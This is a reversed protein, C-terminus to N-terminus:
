HHLTLKHKLRFGIKNEDNRGHHQQLSIHLQQIKTMTIITTKSKPEIKTSNIKPQRKDIDNNFSTTTNKIHQQQETTKKTEIITFFKDDDKLTQQQQHIKDTSNSPARNYDHKIRNSEIKNISSKM